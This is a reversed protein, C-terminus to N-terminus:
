LKRDRNNLLILIAKERSVLYEPPLHNVCKQFFIEISKPQPPM